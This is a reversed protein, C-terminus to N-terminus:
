RNNTKQMGLKIDLQKQFYENMARGDLIEGDKAVIGQQLLQQFDPLERIRQRNQVEKMYENTKNRSIVVGYEDILGLYEMEKDSADYKIKYNPDVVSRKTAHGSTKGIIKNLGAKILDTFSKKNDM